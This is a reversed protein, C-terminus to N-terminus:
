CNGLTNELSSSLAQLQDLKTVLQIDSRRAGKGLKGLETRRYRFM